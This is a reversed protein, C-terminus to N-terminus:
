YLPTVIYRSLRVQDENEIQDSVDKAGEGEGLGGQEIDEFETAGEGSEEEEMEPPLCFGKEALETFVGLLVTLLKCCTQHASLLNLLYSDALCVYQDLLPVLSSVPSSSIDQSMCLETSEEGHSTSTSPAQKLQSILAKVSTQVSDLDLKSIEDIMNNYMHSVLHGEILSDEDDLCHVITTSFCFTM